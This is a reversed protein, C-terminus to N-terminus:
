SRILLGMAYLRRVGELLKGRVEKAEPPGTPALEDVIEGLRRKGDCNGLLAMSRGDMTGGIKFGRAVSFRIDRLALGGEQFSVVQEFALDEVPRFAAASLDPEGALWARAEFIRLIQDSTAADSCLPFDEPATWTPGASRRRMIVGGSALGEIGERRFYGTWRDISAEYERPRKPLLPRNWDGAYELPTRTRSHILLVDCGSGAIWERVPDSGRQGPRLAWNCLVSAFGGERLHRPLERVLTRCLSDDKAGSDRFQFDSDPSIVYPPNSMILDFTEGAVPEFLSGPRIDVNRVDNLAANFATFNLARPNIDTAVVRECHRSAYIAAVGCGTGLDLAARAPRRVALAVLGVSSPNVGVVYDAPVALPDDFYPDSALVLTDFPNFKVLSELGGPGSRVLGMAALREPTLPKLDRAAVAPDVRVELMFLRILTPLLGEPPLRRVILPVDSRPIGETTDAACARRIEQETYNAARFLERLASIGEPDDISLLHGSTRGAATVTSGTM